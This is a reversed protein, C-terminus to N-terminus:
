KLPTAGSETKLIKGANLTHVVLISEKTGDPFTGIQHMVLIDDNEYLCRNNTFTLKGENMANYMSIVTSMWEEKSVQEGSQHRVFIYDPHLLDFYEDPTTNGLTKILKDYVSM